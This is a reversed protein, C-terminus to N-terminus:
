LLLYMKGLQAIKLCVSCKTDAFIISFSDRKNFVFPKWIAGHKRALFLSFLCCLKFVKPCFRNTWQQLFSKRDLEQKNLQRWIWFHWGNINIKILYVFPKAKNLFNRNKAVFIDRKCNKRCFTCKKSCFIRQTQQRNSLHWALKKTRM